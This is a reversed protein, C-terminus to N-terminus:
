LREPVYTAQAPMSDEIEGGVHAAENEEVDVLREYLVKVENAAQQQLKLLRALVQDGRRWGKTLMRENIRRERGVIVTAVDLLREATAGDAAILEQFVEYYDLEQATM